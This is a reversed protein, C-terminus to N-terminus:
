EHAPAIKYIRRCSTAKPPDLPPTLRRTTADIAAVNDGCEM